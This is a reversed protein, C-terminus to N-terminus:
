QEVITTFLWFAQIFVPCDLVSTLENMANDRGMEQFPDFPRSCSHRMMTELGLFTMVAGDM